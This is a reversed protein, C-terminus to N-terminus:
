QRHKNDGRMQTTLDSVHTVLYIIKNVSFYQLVFLIMKLSRKCLCFSKKIQLLIYYYCFTISSYSSTSFYNFRAESGIVIVRLLNGCESYYFVIVRFLSCCKLRKRYSSLPKFLHSCTFHLKGFATSLIILIWTVPPHNDNSGKWIGWVCFRTLWRIPM